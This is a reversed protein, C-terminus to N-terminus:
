IQVMRSKIDMKKLPNIVDIDIGLLYEYGQAHEEYKNRFSSFFGKSLLEDFVEERILYVVVFGQHNEAILSYCSKIKQPCEMKSLVLRNLKVRFHGLLEEYSGFRIDIVNGRITQDKAWIGCRHEWVKEKLELIFNLDKLQPLRAVIEDCHTDTSGNNYQILRDCYELNDDVTKLPDRKQRCAYVFRGRDFGTSLLSYYLESDFFNNM